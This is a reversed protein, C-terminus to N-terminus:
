REPRFDGAAYSNRPNWIMWGDAGFDEAAKIQLRVEGDAFSRGGFAYDRFAQLWPRFGVPPRATRKRGEELSLRIIEYPHDVPRRYGPIGFQFSSPYLMPSVYDVIGAIHEIQQGIKTDGRNWCIYGFVDVALFVNFPALATRAEALFGEVAAERNAETWPREFALGPTDPLRAYDFQIEDFGAKAAEVAIGINYNWVDRSYPNTWALGERDHFISGDRRRIALDPRSQALLTDKFVVIRAITYIGCDRFSKVLAPLDTITRVRQAGVTSVLPIASPYPVLGRDGKIDIVLANLETAEILQLANTRLRQNGIGYVTLYLAKPRFPRLRIQPEPGALAQAPSEARLYGAARARVADGGAASVAVRGKADARLATAGVTVIADAIPAGTVGDVIRVTVGRSPPEGSASAFWAALILLLTPMLRRAMM